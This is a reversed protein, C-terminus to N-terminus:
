AKRPLSEALEFAATAEKPLHYSESEDPFSRAEVDHMYGEIASRFLASADAYQRVDLLDDSRKLM